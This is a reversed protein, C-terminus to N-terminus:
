AISFREGDRHQRVDMNASITPRTRLATRLSPAPTPPAPAVPERGVLTRARHVSLVRALQQLARQEAAADGAVARIRMELARQDPERRDAVATRAEAIIAAYTDAAM